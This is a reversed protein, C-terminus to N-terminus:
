DGKGDNPLVGKFANGLYVEEEEEDEEEYYEEEIDYQTLKRKSDDFFKDFEKNIFEYQNKPKFYHFEVTFHFAVNNIFKQLLTCMPKEITETGSPANVIIYINWLNQEQGKYTLIGESAFFRVDEDKVEYLKAIHNTAELSLQKSIYPDVGYIMVTIM